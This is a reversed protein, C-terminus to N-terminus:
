SKKLKVIFVGQGGEAYKGESFSAVLPHSALFDAIIPKIVPGNKSHIGVGTILSVIRYGDQRCDNIFEDALDLIQGHTLPGRDHFDFEAQPAQLHQYKNAMFNDYCKDAM